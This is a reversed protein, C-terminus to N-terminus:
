DSIKSKYPLVIVKVVLPPVINADYKTNDFQNYPLGIMGNEMGYDEPMRHVELHLSKCHLM